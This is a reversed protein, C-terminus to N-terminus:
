AHPTASEDEEGPPTPSALIEALADLADHADAGAVELTVKTGPEAALLLLELWNKGDVPRTGDRSVTVSSEFRSALEAFAAAPRM